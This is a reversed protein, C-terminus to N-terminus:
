EPQFEPHGTQWLAFSFLDALSEWSKTKSDGIGHGAEFDALFLIHEESANAAMLRAAFKAPVWAIVRPDNMGATVLTAPYKTGEAIHHYSDMEILAICEVSDQPDGFEPINAPGGPSFVMRIPNMSGVEPVVAAFLDPRETMARGVLIGGASGGNIALKGPSTYNKDILYEACAILDKWTNPKTVKQGGKHWADGKEGGGRVHAVATIGGKYIWLFYNPSFFPNIPYGYSGYGMMFLPTTGDLKTGKKYVISLPVMVGDHSPVEVEEVVLDDYEPYEARDSLQEYTFANTNVDYRYRKFDTTWGMVTVWLDSFMFDKDALYLTGAPEPLQIEMAKKEGFPLFYLKEEVGNKALTYYIGDKTVTFDDIIADEPENVLVKAKALEPNSLDVKIIKYNPANDQSKCYLAKANATIDVVNDELKFLRKWRIKDKKLDKKPAYYANWRNDVTFLAGIIWDIDKHYLVMPFDVKTIELDPYKERSFIEVDENADTGVRHIYVKSDFLRDQRHVDASKLRSYIFSENGEMWSSFSGWCRDIKEPYLEKTKVKLIIMEGSESGNPSVEIAVKSGDWSPNFGSIVYQQGSEPNYIEPDFLLEEDGEFGNRTYLKGTEDEPTTKTYFYIDNETIQPRTVRSSKRKDFEAMKDVLDQRGPIRDLLERSYKSHDKMWAIVNSDDLNEMYRYPDELEVGFYTDTVLEVNALPPKEPLASKKPTCQLLAIALIVLALFIKKM